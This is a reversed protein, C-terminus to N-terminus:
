QSTQPRAGSAPGAATTAGSAASVGCAADLERGEHSAEAGVAVVRVPESAADGVARPLVRVVDLWLRM